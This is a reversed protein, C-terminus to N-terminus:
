GGSSGITGSMRAGTATESGAQISKGSRGEGGKQEPKGRLRNMRLVGVESRIRVV